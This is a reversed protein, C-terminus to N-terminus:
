YLPQGVGSPNDWAWLWTHSTTSVDGIFQVHAVLKAIGSDSFVIQQSRQDWDYQAYRSLHYRAELTDQRARLISDAQDADRRYTAESACASTLALVACGALLLSPTSTLM